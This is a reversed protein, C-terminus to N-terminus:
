LSGMCCNHVSIDSHLKNLGVNKNDRTPRAISLQDYKVIKRVGGAKGGGRKVRPRSRQRLLAYLLTM